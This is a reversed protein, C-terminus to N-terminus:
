NEAFFVKVNNMLLLFGSLLIKKKENKLFKKVIEEGILGKQYAPTSEFMKGMFDGCFIKRWSSVKDQLVFFEKPPRDSPKENSPM